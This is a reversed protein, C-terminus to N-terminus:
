DRQTKNSKENKGLRHQNITSPPTVSTFLPLYVSLSLPLVMKKMHKCDYEYNPGGRASEDIAKSSNSQSRTCERGNGRALVLLCCSVGLLLLVAVLFFNCEGM